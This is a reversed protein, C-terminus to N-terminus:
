ILFKNSGFNESLHSHLHAQVQTYALAVLRMFREKQEGLTTMAEKLAAFLVQLLQSASVQRPADHEAELADLGAELAACFPQLFRSFVGQILAKKTGFHYNVAALNVNAKGTITRLSTEAFGREAFLISAADLIRDVTERQSM